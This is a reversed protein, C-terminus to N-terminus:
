VMKERNWCLKWESAKAAADTMGHAVFIVGVPRMALGYEVFFSVWYEYEREDYIYSGGILSLWLSISCYNRCKTVKKILLRNNQM